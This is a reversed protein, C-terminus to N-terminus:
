VIKSTKEQNTYKFSIEREVERVNEKVSEVVHLRYSLFMRSILTSGPYM